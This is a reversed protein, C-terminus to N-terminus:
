QIKPIFGNHLALGCIFVKLIQKPWQIANMGFGTSVALNNWLNRVDGGRISRARDSREPTSAPTEPLSPWDHYIGAPM